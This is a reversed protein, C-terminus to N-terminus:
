DMANLKEKLWLMSEYETKHKEQTKMVIQRQDYSLKAEAMEKQSLGCGQEELDRIVRNLFFRAKDKM